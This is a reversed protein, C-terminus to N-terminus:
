LTLYMKLFIFDSGLYGEVRQGLTVTESTMLIRLWRGYEFYDQHKTELDLLDFDGTKGMQMPPMMKLPVPIGKAYQSAFHIIVALMRMDGANVPAFCFTFRDRLTLGQVRDLMGAVRKMADYKCLFYAGDLRTSKAFRDLLTSFNVDPLRAAFLEVQEFFPFLGAGDAERLDSGMCSILYPTDISFFCTVSGDPYRSGRRGARGAIQKVMSPTIQRKEAGNFKQLSFFVVRNINLNLGMGVADSAVLVDYGSNPDNFLKAQQRRTEPPLSGYIVSCRHDTLLELQKKIEFIDKRRFAVICDGPRIARFDGRLSETEIKLPRFREYQHEELDDGTQAAIGRIVPLMSPDGCVHLEAVQLGLLARTFAWGRFEDAMMQIEDIVGVEFPRHFSAMEVTCAVHKAFPMEKKEQGTTLNCYVGHANAKDYIEMALLRLPGCYIGDKAQQFRQLAAYTKGSNTPGYHYVIKRRM